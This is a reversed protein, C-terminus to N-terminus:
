ATQLDVIEAETKTLDEKLTLFAELTLNGGTRAIAGKLRDEISDIEHLLNKLVPHDDTYRVRAETVAQPLKRYEEIRPDDLNMEGSSGVKALTLLDKKHTE